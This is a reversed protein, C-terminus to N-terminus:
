QNNRQAAQEAAKPLGLLVSIIELSGRIRNSQDHEKSSILLGIKKEKLDKLYLELRQWDISHYNIAEEPKLMRNLRKLM